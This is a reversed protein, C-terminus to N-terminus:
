HPPPNPAPTTSAPKTRTMAQVFRLYEPFQLRGDRSADFRALPPASAGARKVLLLQAYENADLAHDHNRDITAFQQQLGREATGARRLARWGDDFERASLQGDHNRDWAAFLADTHPPHAPLRSGDPAPEGVAVSPTPARQALALPAFAFLLVAFLCRVSFISV